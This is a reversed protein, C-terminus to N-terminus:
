NTKDLILPLQLTLNLKKAWGRLAGRSFQSDKTAQRVSRYSALQVLLDKAARLEQLNEPWTHSLLGERLEERLATFRLPSRSAIFWRDLLAPIEGIRERLPSITIKKADNVLAAPLSAEAKDLSRACIILRLNADAHVLAAVFRADLRGRHHLHVLVTGNCADSLAQRTTSNLKPREPMAHFANHRRHSVRHIQRGLRAQDCGPEGLLLVHRSSDKVAAILLDDIAGYQRIGIAEMVEPRALRMEENLAYYKSEGIEFWEGAAMGFESLAVESNYVIDNKGSSVNTIRISARSSVLIREICAHVPALYKRDVRLDCTDARGLTFSTQATLMPLTIGTGIVGLATIPDM